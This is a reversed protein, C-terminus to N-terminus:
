NLCLACVRDETSYVRCGYLLIIIGMHFALPTPITFHYIIIFLAMAYAHLLFFWWDLVGNQTYTLTHSPSHTHEPSSLRGVDCALVTSLPFCIPYLTLPTGQPFSLHFSHPLIPIFLRRSVYILGHGGVGLLRIGEITWRLNLIAPRRVPAVINAQHQWPSIIDRFRWVLVSVM